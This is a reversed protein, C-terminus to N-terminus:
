KQLYLKAIAAAHQGPVLYRGNSFIKSKGRHALKNVQIIKKARREVRRLNKKRTKLTKNKSHFRHLFLRLQPTKKLSFVNVNMNFYALCDKHADTQYQNLTTPITDFYKKCELRDTAYETGICKKIAVVYMLWFVSGDISEIAFSNYPKGLDDIIQSILKERLKILFNNYADNDTYLLDIYEIVELDDVSSFNDRAFQLLENRRINSDDTYLVDLFSNKEDATIINLVCNMVDTTSVIM